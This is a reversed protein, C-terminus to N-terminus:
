ESLRAAALPRRLRLFLIAATLQCAVGFVVAAPVSVFKYLAGLGASGAFWALGFMGMFTGFARGRKNMSVVEAIAARLCVDQAGMGVAWCAAGALAWGASGLLGLPLSWLSVLTGAALMGVGHRHFLKGVGLGVLGELGMVGAFLLPIAAPAFLGVRAFHFSLLPWDLFGAALLGAALAYRWFVEPLATWRPPAPAQPYVPQVARAVLLTGFAALAPIALPLFARRYSQWERVALWMLLPGLVAGAQDMAGHLGFGWGHGVTATAESLLVDRAPGRVAKGTKEAVVLAAAQPWVTALSFAPIVFLNLLYGGMALRWYARTRDALRGSFYRLSAAMMEGLGAIVGVEFANARLQQLYPGLISYAGEYTMDAFLSVLGLCVIFRLAAQRRTIVTAM